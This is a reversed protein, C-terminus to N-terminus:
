TNISLMRRVQRWGGLRWHGGFTEMNWMAGGLVVSSQGVRSESDVRVLYTQDVGAELMEISQLTSKIPGEM